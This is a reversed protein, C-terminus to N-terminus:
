ATVRKRNDHDSKLLNSPHIDLLMNTDLNVGAVARYTSHAISNVSLTSRYILYM